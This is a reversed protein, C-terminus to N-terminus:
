RRRDIKEIQKNKAKTPTFAKGLIGKGQLNRVDRLCQNCLVKGTKDGIRGCKECIVDRCNVCMGLINKERLFQGCEGCFKKNGAEEEYDTKEEWYGM